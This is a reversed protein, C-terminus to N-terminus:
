IHNLPFNCRACPSSNPNLTVTTRPTLAGNKWTPPFHISVTPERFNDAPFTVDNKNPKPKVGCGKGGNLGRRKFGKGCLGCSARCKSRVWDDTCCAHSEIIGGGGFAPVCGKLKPFRCSEGTPIYSACFGSDLSYGKANACDQTIEDFAKTLVAFVLLLSRLVM